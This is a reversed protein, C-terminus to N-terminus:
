WFNEFVRDLRVDGHRAFAPFEFGIDGDMDAFADHHLALAPGLVGIRREVGGGNMDGLPQAAVFPPQAIMVAAAGLLGFCQHRLVKDNFRMAIKVILRRRVILRQDDGLHRRRDFRERDAFRDHAHVKRPLRRQHEVAARM